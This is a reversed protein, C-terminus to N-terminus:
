WEAFFVTKTIKHDAFNFRSKQFAVIKPFWFRFRLIRYKPIRSKNKQFMRDGTSGTQIQLFGRQKLPNRACIKPVTEAGFDVPFAFRRFSLFQFFTSAFVVPFFHSFWMKQKAAFRKTLRQKAFYPIKVTWLSYARCLCIRPKHLAYKHIADIIRKKLLTSSM